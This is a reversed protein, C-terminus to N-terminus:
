QLMEIPLFNPFRGEYRQPDIIPDIVFTDIAAQIHEATEACLLGFKRDDEARGPMCLDYATTLYAHRLEVLILDYTLDAPCDAGRRILEAFPTDLAPKM